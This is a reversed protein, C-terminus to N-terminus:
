KCFHRRVEPNTAILSPFKTTSKTELPLPDDGDGAQAPEIGVLSVQAGRNGGGGLSSDRFEM